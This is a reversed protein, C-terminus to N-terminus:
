VTISYNAYNDFPMMGKVPEVVLWATGVGIELTEEPGSPWWSWNSRYVSAGRTGEEVWWGVCLVRGSKSLAKAAEIPCM